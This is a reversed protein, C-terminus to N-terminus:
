RKQQALPLALLPLFCAAAAVTGKQGCRTHRATNVPQQRGIVIARRCFVAGGPTQRGGPSEQPGGEGLLPRDGLNEPIAWYWQAQVHNFEKDAESEEESSTGTEYEGGSHDGDVFFLMGDGQQGPGIYVNDVREVGVFLRQSADHWALFVRFALDEPDIEDGGYPVFYDQDMSAGPLVGEWDSLTGDHLDPLDSTPLEYIPYIIDGRHAGAAGALAVTLLVAASLMCRM